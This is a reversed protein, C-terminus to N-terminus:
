IDLLMSITYVCVSFLEELVKIIVQLFYTDNM